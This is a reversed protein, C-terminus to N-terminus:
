KLLISIQYKLVPIYTVTFEGALITGPPLDAYNSPDFPAPANYVGWAPQVRSLQVTVIDGKAVVFNPPTPAGPGTASFVETQNNTVTVIEATGLENGIIAINGESAKPVVPHQNKVSKPKTIDEDPKGVVELTYTINKITNDLIRQAGVTSQKKEKLDDIRTQLADIYSQRILGRDHKRIYAWESPQEKNVTHIRHKSKWPRGRLVNGIGNILDKIPNDPNQFLFDIEDNGTPDTFKLPNNFAYSYRNHNQSYDPVQLNIDPSLM